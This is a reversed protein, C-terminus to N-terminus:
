GKPLDWIWGNLFGEKKRRVGLKAAAHRLQKRTIGEDKALSQVDRAEQPGTSLIEALWSRVTVADHQDEGAEVSSDSRLIEDMTTEVVEPSWEVRATGSEAHSVLRYALGQTGKSLNNKVPLFLRREADAPDRVVGWAARAAAVFALSGMARYMARGGARKNLHTVAVIAVHREQALQALPTLVARVESNNVGSGGSLYAAIPDIVVLRTGPRADLHRALLDRDHALSFVREGLREERVATIAGVRSMDGGAAELRPRVTDSLGDEANFLLVDGLPASQAPDDPWALGRTVRAALDLSVFSKGLDPDGVIITLKGIAIRGRWLWEVRDTPVESLSVTIAERRTRFPSDGTKLASDAPIHPPVRLLTSKM